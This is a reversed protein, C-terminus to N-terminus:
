PKPPNKTPPAVPSSRTPPPVTAPGATILKGQQDRVRVPRGDVNFQTAVLMPTQGAVLSGTVDIREGERLSLGLADCLPDPAVLVTLRGGADPSVDLRVAGPRGRTSHLIKGQVTTMSDAGFLTPLHPAGNAPARAGPSAASGPATAPQATAASPAAIWAAVLLAVVGLRRSFRESPKKMEQTMM